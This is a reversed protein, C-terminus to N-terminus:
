INQIHVAFETPADDMNLFGNETEMRSFGVRMTGKVIVVAFM